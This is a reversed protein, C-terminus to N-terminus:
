DIFLFGEHDLYPRIVRDCRLAALRTVAVDVVIVVIAGIPLADERFV